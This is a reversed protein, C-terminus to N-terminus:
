WFVRGHWVAGKQGGGRTGRSLWYYLEGGRCAVSDGRRACANVVALDQGKSLSQPRKGLLVRMVGDREGDANAHTGHLMAIRDLGKERTSILGEVGGLM